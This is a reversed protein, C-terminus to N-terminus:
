GDFVNKTRAPQWGGFDVKTGNQVARGDAHLMNADIWFPDGAQGTWV